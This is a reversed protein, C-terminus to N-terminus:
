DKFFQMDIILNNSIEKLSQADRSLTTVINGLEHMSAATQQSAAANQESIASLSNMSDTIGAKSQECKEASQTITEIGGVSTEIGKILKNISQVTSNLIKKQEEETKTSIMKAMDVASQSERLLLDMETHIEAASAASEDALKGIEEAVVAFGRGSEGARAAEISANLALLNTQSAISNITEVKDSIRLVAAKTASIKESIEEIANNMDDSSAKLKLLQESSDKSNASMEEAIKTVTEANETVNQINQSIVITNEVADQIEGAQQTAGEAIEQVANSVSDSTSSIGEVMGSLAESSNNVIDASTKIEGVITQLKEIVANIERIIAGFEDNRETFSKIKLFRGDVLAAMSDSIEQIPATFSKSIFLALIGFAVLFVVGILVNTLSTVTSAKMAVATVRCSAIVWGTTAEKYWSVMWKKGEWTTDYNGTTTSGRSDTYFPNQAQTEMNSPDIDHSSHAIVAGQTDVMVIEQQDEIVESALLEHFVSLDYNRQVIGIAKGSEDKVPVALTIIRSGNSKSIQIDTLYNSGEMAKQFYERESVDVPDGASKIVQMGDSGSIAMANGDDLVEDMEKLQALIQEETGAAAKGQLFTITSPSAAISELVRLNQDILTTVSQAVIHAQANNINITQSTSSTSSSVTSIITIITVPVAVIFLMTLILKTKISGLISGKRRSAPRPTAETQDTRNNM